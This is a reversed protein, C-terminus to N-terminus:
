KKLEEALMWFGRELNIIIGLNKLNTRCWRLRYSLKTGTSTDDEYTVIEEPLNLLEIVKDNIQQTTAKGGYFSLSEIITKELVSNSPFYLM